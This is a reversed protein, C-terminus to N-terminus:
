ELLVRYSKPFESLHLTSSQREVLFNFTSAIFFLKTRLGMERPLTFQGREIACCIVDENAKSVERRGRADAEVVEERMGDGARRRARWRERGEAGVDPQCPVSNAVAAVARCSSEVMRTLGPARRVWATGGVVGTAVDLIVLPMEGM